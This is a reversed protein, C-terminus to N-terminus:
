NVLGSIERRPCLIWALLFVLHTSWGMGFFVCFKRWCVNVLGLTALMHQGFGEWALPSVFNMEIHTSWVGGHWCPCYISRLMNQGFGDLALYFVFHKQQGFVKRGLSSLFIIEVHWGRGPWCIFFTGLCKNFFGDCALSSLFNMEAHTSCVGGMCTLVCFRIEM